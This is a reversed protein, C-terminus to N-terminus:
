PESRGAVGCWSRLVEVYLAVMPVLDALAYHEDPRHPNLGAGPGFLLGPIGARIFHRLDSTGTSPGPVIEPMALRRAAAIVEDQLRTDDVHTPEASLGSWRIAIPADVAYRSEFARVESAIRERMRAVTFPPPFTV